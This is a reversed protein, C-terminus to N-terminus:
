KKFSIWVAFATVAAIIAVPVIIDTRMAGSNTTLPDSGDGISGQMACPCTGLGSVSQYSM